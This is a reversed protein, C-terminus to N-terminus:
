NPALLPIDATVTLSESVEGLQLQSPLPTLVAAEVKIGTQVLTQFGPAQIEVQYTGLPLFRVEWNGAENTQVERTTGTEESRVVVNAGPIASKSPDTM